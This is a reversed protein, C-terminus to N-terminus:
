QNPREVKVSPCHLECWTKSRVAVTTHDASSITKNIWPISARTSTIQQEFHLSQHSLHMQQSILLQLPPKHHTKLNSKLTRWASSRNLDIKMTFLKQLGELIATFGDLVRLLLRAQLWWWWPVLSEKIFVLPGLSLNNQQAHFLCERLTKAVEGYM